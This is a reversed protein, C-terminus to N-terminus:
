RRRMRPTLRAEVMLRLKSRGTVIRGRRLSDLFDTPSAYDEMEVFVNGIEGITHADSGAGPAAGLISCLDEARRNAKPESRGNFVEVIDIQDAIEEIARESMHRRRDDYPHELYVLGGQEKIALAAAKPTPKGTVAANLFLGILEGDTTMIEEGIVVRPNKARSQLRAATSVTEHDTLVVVDLGLRRCQAIVLEPRSRSDFSADTHVHLDARIL